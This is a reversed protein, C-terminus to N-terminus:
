QRRRRGKTEESIHDVDSGGADLMRRAASLVGATSIRTIDGGEGQIYRNKEGQPAWQRPDTPGFLSLVPAGVAAAVHMVGTDNSIVLRVASLISAVRRISENKVLYAPISLRSELEKWPEEDMPGVTVIFRVKREGALASAVEAFRAAPWRNPVKGAGPHLAV